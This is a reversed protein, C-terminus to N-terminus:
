GYTTSSMMEEVVVAKVGCCPSRLSYRDRNSITDPWQSQCYTCRLICYIKRSYWEVSVM